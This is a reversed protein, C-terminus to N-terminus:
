DGGLLLAEGMGALALANGGASLRNAREYARLALDYEGSGAYAAGLALWGSLDQPESEVHRALAAITTSAANAARSWAHNGILGYVIASAATVALVALAAALPAPPAGPRRRLLPLGLFLGALAALLLAALAFATM